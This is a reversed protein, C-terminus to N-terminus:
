LEEGHTLDRLRRLLSYCESGPLYHDRVAQEAKELLWLAGEIAAERKIKVVDNIGHMYAFDVPAMDYPHKKDLWKELESQNEETM